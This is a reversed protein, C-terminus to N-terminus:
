RGPSHPVTVTTQATATHGSANRCTIVVVYVREGGRVAKSARLNVHHPNVIAVDTADSTPDNSTAPLACMPAQGSSDFARYDLTVDVLKNNPPWLVNPSASVGVIELLRIAPPSIVPQIFLGFGAPSIVPIPSGVVTNTATDIVTVTSSVNNAVYVKSGDPTLAVVYPM